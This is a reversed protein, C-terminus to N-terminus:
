SVTNTDTIASYKDTLYCHHGLPIFLAFVGFLQKDYHKFFIKAKLDKKYIGFNQFIKFVYLPEFNLVQM